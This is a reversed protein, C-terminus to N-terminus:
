SELLRVVQHLRRSAARLSREVEFLGVAVESEPPASHREAVGGIRDALEELVTLASQLSPADASSM